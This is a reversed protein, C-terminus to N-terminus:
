EDYDGGNRILQVAIRAGFEKDAMEAERKKGIADDKRHRAAIYRREVDERIFQYKELGLESCILIYDGFADKVIRNEVDFLGRIIVYVLGNRDTYSDFHGTPWAIGMIEKIGLCNLFGLAVNYENM